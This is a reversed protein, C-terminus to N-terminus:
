KARESEKISCDASGPEGAFAREEQSIDCYPEIVSLDRVM